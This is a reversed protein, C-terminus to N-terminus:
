ATMAHRRQRRQAAALRDMKRLDMADLRMATDVWLDTVDVLESHSIPQCRERVQRMAIQANHRRRHRSIHLLLAVEAEGMLNQIPSRLEHALGSTMLDARETETRIKALM